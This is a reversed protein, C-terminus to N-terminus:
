LFVGVHILMRINDFMIEGSYNQYPIKHNIDFKDFHLGNAM